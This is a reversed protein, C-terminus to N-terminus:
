GLQATARDTVRAAATRRLQGAGLRTEDGTEGLLDSIMRRAAALTATLAEEAHEREDLQLALKAEALGQVIDDNIELARRQRERLDDFLKARRMLPAHNRRLSRYYIAVAIVLNAVTGAVWWM